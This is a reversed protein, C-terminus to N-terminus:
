YFSFEINNPHEDNLLVAQKSFFSRQQDTMKEHDPWTGPDMVDIIKDRSSSQLLDSSALQVDDEPQSLVSSSSQKGEDSGQFKSQETLNVQIDLICSNNPIGPITDSTHVSRLSSGGEHLWKIMKSASKNVDEIKDRARKRNEAGSLKKRPASTAQKKCGLIYM